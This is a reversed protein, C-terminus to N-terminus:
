EKGIHYPRKVPGGSEVEATSGQTTFNVAQSNRTDTLYNTGGAQPVAISLGDLLLRAESNARGGSLIAGHASFTCSNCPGTSVDQQPFAYTPLPPGPQQWVLRTRRSNAVTVGGAEARIWRASPEWTVGPIMADRRSIVSM